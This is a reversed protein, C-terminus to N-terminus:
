REELIWKGDGDRESVIEEGGVIEGFCYFVECILDVELMVYVFSWFDEVFLKSGWVKEKLLVKELWSVILEVM